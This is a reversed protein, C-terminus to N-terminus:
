GRGGGGASPRVSGPPPPREAAGGGAWRPLVADVRELLRDIEADGAMYRRLQTTVEGLLGWALRAASDYREARREHGRERQWSECAETACAECTGVWLVGPLPTAFTGGLHGHQPSGHGLSPPVAIDVRKTLEDLRRALERIAGSLFFLPAQENACTSYADLVTVDYYGKGDGVLTRDSM